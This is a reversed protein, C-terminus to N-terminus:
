RIFVIAEIAGDIPQATTWARGAIALRVSECAVVAAPLDLTFRAPVFARTTSPGGQACSVSIEVEGLQDAPQLDHAIRLGTVDDPLDLLREALMGGNGPRIRITLGGGDRARAYAGYEDTLRWDFPPFEAQWDLGTDSPGGGGASGDGYARYLAFAEAVRGTRALNAIMARDTVPDIAASQPLALRIAALNSASQEDLSSALLFDERWPSPRSLLRVFEAVLTEDRMLEVVSPTIQRSISPSVLLLDNVTRLVEESQGTESYHRLLASQTFADRRSLRTAAALLEGRRAPTADWSLIALPLPNLLSRDLTDRALDRAEGVRITDVGGGSAPVRIAQRTLILTPIPVTDSLDAALEPMRYALAMAMSHQLSAVAALLAMAAVAVPLILRSRPAETM